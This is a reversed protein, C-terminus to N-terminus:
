EEPEDIIINNIEQDNNIEMNKKKMYITKFIRFYPAKMASM